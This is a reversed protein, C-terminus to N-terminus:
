SPTEWHNKKWVLVIGWSLEWGLAWVRRVLSSSHSSRGTCTLDARPGLASLGWSSPHAVTEGQLLALLSGRTDRLTQGTGTTWHLCCARGTTGLDRQWPWCRWPCPSRVTVRGAGGASWQCLNEAANNCWWMCNGSTKWVRQTEWGQVVKPVDERTKLKGDTLQPM